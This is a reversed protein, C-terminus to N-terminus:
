IGVSSSVVNWAWNILSNLSRRRYSFSIRVKQNKCESTPKIIRLSWSWILRIRDREKWMNQRLNRGWWKTQNNGSGKMMVTRKIELEMKQTSLVNDKASVERFSWNWCADPSLTRSGCHSFAITVNFLTPIWHWWERTRWGIFLM